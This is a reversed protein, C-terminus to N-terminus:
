TKLSESTARVFVSPVAIVVIEQGETAVKLDSTFNIKDSLVCGKLNPHVHTEKLNKVEQEFKSYLVVDHGHNALMNAIATGWTGSGIISISSM